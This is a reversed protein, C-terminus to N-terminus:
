EARLAVNPDVRAARRAPLYASLITVALVALGLAIYPIDESHAQLQIQNGDSPTPTAPAGNAPQNGSGLLAALLRVIGANLGLGAATGCVALVIGQLLVLNVISRSRAGLAMRIGIERTRSNVEFAILGYLGVLSLGLGLVGMSAVTDTGLRVLKEVPVLFSQLTGPDPDVQDPDLDHVVRRMPEVLANPDGGARVYAMVPRQTSPKEYPLFIVDMPPMGFAMFDDIHAVGVVEVWQGSGLRVRNGVAEQGSWYHRALVENVVAVEPAHGVDSKRFGRGKLIPIKLADFFGEDTWVASTKVDEHSATAQSNSAEPRIAVIEREALAVASVGRTSRMREEFQGLFQEARAGKPHMTASDFQTGVLHDVDFGPNKISAFVSRDVSKYLVGSITLLVVSLAVQGVVLLNRGRLMKWLRHRQPALEGSGKMVSMLDARTAQFAPILGFFVVSLLAVGISFLLVRENLEVPIPQLDSDFPIKIQKALLIPIYGFGVGAVGGAVALLLSETLLQRILRPRGAGIARRMAIERARAPARSTLLGAVNACAVLLVAGALTMLFLGASAGGGTGRYQLVTQVLLSRNRNAEPYQKELGAAITGVEARVQSLAAGPKLRGTVTLKRITRDQLVNAEVGMLSGAPLPLFFAPQDDDVDTFTAPIVGVITFEIGNIRADKGLIGPDSAFDREWCAHGLIVVADRGPVTTEEALFDRGLEPKVGLVAFYNGTVLLGDRSRPLLGARASVGASQGLSAALGAFTTVRDRVDTYDPYSVTSGNSDRATSAVVVVESARPVHLPRLLIADAISFMACNAGVGAALSLVAVAAFGPNRLFARAAYHLDRWVDEIWQLQWAARADEGVRARPGFERRARQLAETPPVGERELEEARAEIHFRIEQDLEQDFKARRGLYVVRRLIEKWTGM